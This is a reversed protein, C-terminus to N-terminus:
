SALEELIERLGELDFPKRVSPQGTGELFQQTQPSLMDGTMFVFRKELGPRRKKIEQYLTMGDMVPMKVDCLIVDFDRKELLSLAEEGNRSTLVQYGWVKLARGLIECIVEEDDVLLISRSKEKAEEGKLKTLLERAWLPRLKVVPLEIVFKAGGEPINEAWIHGNHQRIIGYTISLGLGTGGEKTTFFPDFIRPMIEPPIGPGDDIFEIQIWPGSFEEQFEANYYSSEQVVSTRVTLHGGKHAEVMAQRANVIINLFAQQLQYPDGATAPLDPDLEKKVQINEVEMEYSQLDLSQEIIENINVERRAPPRQRAFDLLAGIIHAAREAQEQIRRLDKKVDEPVEAKQLLQAYGLVATLPNNLEHAIGAAVEGISSLKEAQFLREQMRKKETIDKYTHVIGVIRGTADRLPFLSLLFIIGLRPEELEISVPQGSELVKSFPCLPHPASFSHLVEYCHKGVVKEPAMKIMEAFARNVRLIRLSTDTIAIGEEIANFTTEWEKGAKSVAEFLRANAIAVAAQDALTQALAVIYPSHRRPENYYLALAGLLEGRHFLPLYITSGIGEQTTIDRLSALLPDKLVDPIVYPSPREKVDKPWPIIGKVAKLYDPSLGQWAVCELEGTEESFLFIGSRDAELLSISVNVLVNLVADLKLESNIVKVADQLAGMQHYRKQIGEYLRANQIALAVQNAITRALEIEEQSFSRKNEMVDLGISGIVNEQVILPVILMSRIGLYEMINRVPAMLPSALTDEIALPKKEKIIFQAAPYGELEIRAGTAGQPPYEAVVEGTKNEDDFILIGSHDVQFNQVMQKATIELIEKVDLSSNVLSAIRQVLARDEAERKLKELQERMRRHLRANEIAIAMQNALTVFLNIEEPTFADVENKEGNLVALVKGRAKVPVALESLAPIGFSVYRPEKRVDPIYIVEGERAALAIISRESDLPIKTFEVEENTKIGARRVLEGRDEDVFWLGGLPLELVKEAIEMVHRAIEDEDASLVLQQGLRYLAELKERLRKERQTREAVQHRLSINWLYAILFGILLLLLLIVFGTTWQPVGWGGGIMEGFWKNYLLQYVGKKELSALGRNLIDLLEKDGKRVAMCYPAKFLPEGVIKVEDTADLQQLNYFGVWKNGVFADVSGDLLLQIAEAQSPVPVLKISKHKKLYDHAIDGEQVAVKHGALDDLGAIDMTERRVFIVSFNELYPRSFDYFEERHPAYRMGQIADVESAALANRAAAWPMPRLEIEVGLELSLARMLDVNFGKYQGDQVFEFPPLDEDGAVVLKGKRALWEQQEPTLPSVARSPRFRLYYLPVFLVIILAVILLYLKFPALKGKIRGKV